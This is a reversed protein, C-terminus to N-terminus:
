ILAVNTASEALQVHSLQYARMLLPRHAVCLLALTQFAYEQGNHAPSPALIESRGSFLQRSATLARETATFEGRTSYGLHVINLDSICLICIRSACHGLEVALIVKRVCYDCLLM